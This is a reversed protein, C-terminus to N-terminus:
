ESTGATGRRRWVVNAYFIFFPIAFLSSIPVALYKPYATPRPCLNSELGGNMANLRSDTPYASRFLLSPQCVCAARNRSILIFIIGYPTRSEGEITRSGMMTRTRMTVDRLGDRGDIDFKEWYKTWWVSLSLGICQARTFLDGYMCVFMCIYVYVYLVLGVM